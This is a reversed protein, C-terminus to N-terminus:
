TEVVVIIPPAFSAQKDQYDLVGKGGIALTSPQEQLGGEL